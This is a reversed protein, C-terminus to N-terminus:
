NHLKRKKYTVKPLRATQLKYRSRLIPDIGGLNVANAWKNNIGLEYSSRLKPPNMFMKKRFYQFLKKNNDIEFKGHVSYSVCFVLLMLLRLFRM